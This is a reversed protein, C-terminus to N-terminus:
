LHCRANIQSLESDPYHFGMLAQVEEIALFANEVANVCRGEDPTSIEVFTGLLPKCRTM